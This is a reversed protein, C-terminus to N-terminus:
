PNVDRLDAFMNETFDQSLLHELRKAAEEPSFLLGESKMNKFNEVASFASEPANRIEEQMGTDIVGPAVAYAKIKNGLELEELYFAETIMNLAAKSACYAAWSPIAKNAAGSSINVLTFDSKKSCNHYVTKALQMPATVNVQMVLDLDLHESESIRGIVGLIGANNILTVPEDFTRNRLLQAVQDKDSLDCKEFSFNSHDISHSRGVGIVKNGKELFLEATAKGLGRSVGTIIYIM